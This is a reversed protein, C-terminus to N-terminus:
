AIKKPRGPGRKQTAQEKADSLLAELSRESLQAMKAQLAKLRDQRQAEIIMARDDPSLAALEAEIDALPDVPAASPATETWCGEAQKAEHAALDLVTIEEGTDLHWLLRPYPTGRTLDGGDRPPDASWFFTPRPDDKTPLLRLDTLQRPRFPSRGSATDANLAARLSAIQEPTFHSLDM